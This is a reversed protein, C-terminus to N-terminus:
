ELRCFLRRVRKFHQDAWQEWPKANSMSFQKAHIYPALVHPFYLKYDMAKVSINLGSIDDHVVLILKGDKFYHQKIVYHESGVKNNLMENIESSDMGTLRPNAEDNSVPDVEGTELINSVM